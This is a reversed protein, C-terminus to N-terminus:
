GVLWGARKHLCTITIYGRPCSVERIASKLGDASPNPTSVRLNIRDRFRYKQRKSISEGM